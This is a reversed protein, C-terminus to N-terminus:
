FSESSDVVIIVLPFNYQQMFNRKMGKSPKTDKFVWYQSFNWNFKVKMALQKTLADHFFNRKFAFLLSFLLFLSIESGRAHKGNRGAESAQATYRVQFTHM